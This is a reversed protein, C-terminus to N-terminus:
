RQVMWVVGLLVPYRESTWNACSCRFGRNLLPLTSVKGPAATSPLLPRYAIGAVFIEWWSERPCLLMSAWFRGTATKPFDDVAKETIALEMAQGEEFPPNREM